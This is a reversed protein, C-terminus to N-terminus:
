ADDDKKKPKTSKNPRLTLAAEADPLKITFTSGQGPKSWVSVTGSHNTVINRVLSLGLGTGGTSRSRASDTRYFREFIRKTEDHSMGIGRDSVAIEVFGKKKGLSIGVRSKEPSYQVANSLLNKVAMVLRPEDGFTELKEDGGVVFTVAKANAAVSNQEIAAKIVKELKVRKFEALAGESQLRSLEIIEGTLDTLRVAETALSAAFKRVVESDDAAEKLADALLMVAGIPTKLEHSINAIFDRRVQDLRKLESNDSAVILTHRNGFAAVSVDLQLTSKGSGFRNVELDRRLSFDSERVTNVMSSIEIMTLERNLVMGLALAPPSSAVVFNSHDVIIVPVDFLQVLDVVSAPLAGSKVMASEFSRIRVSMLWGVLAGGFLVGGLVALVVWTSEVSQAYRFLYGERSLLTAKLISDGFHKGLWLWANLNDGM